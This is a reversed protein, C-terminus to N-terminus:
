LRDVSRGRREYCEMAANHCAVLQAAIMGELEDKPGIGILGAAAASIRREITENVSCARIRHGRHYRHIYFDLPLDRPLLSVNQIHYLHNTRFFKLGSRVL